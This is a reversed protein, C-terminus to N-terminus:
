NSKRIPDRVLQARGIIDSMHVLGFRSSDLTGDPRDGLVLYTDAPIVGDYGDIYLRLMQQRGARFTYPRGESNTVPEGNVFLSAGHASIRDGPVGKVVKVLPPGSAGSRFLVLEGRALPGQCPLPWVRIFSGSQILPQLSRGEVRYLTGQCYDEGNAITPLLM